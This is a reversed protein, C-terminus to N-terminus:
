AVCGNKRTGHKNPPNDEEENCGILACCTLVLMVAFLFTLFKKM